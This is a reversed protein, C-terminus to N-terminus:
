LPPWGKVKKLFNGLAAAAEARTAFDTAFFRGNPFGQMIDHQIITEIDDKAWEPIKAADTFDEITKNNSPLEVETSELARGLIAALEARTVKATPRFTGDTFGAIVNNEALAYLNNAYWEKGTVDKFRTNINGAELDLGAAVIQAIEARSITSDPRFTGNPYGNLIGKNALLQIADKAWHGSFIDTFEKAPVDGSASKVTKESKEITYEVTKGSWFYFTLNVLGDNTENFFNENLEIYGDDYNPSFTYGFEKFSTWNQPGAISGDEYYAEMTALQDGNFEAPIKFSVTSGEAEGLQPRSFQRVDINWDVGDTFAIHITAISGTEESSISQLFSKKFTITNENITYDENEELLQNNMSVELFENGNLEFTLSKDTWEKGKELYIFNDDPVASRTDWSTQLMEFFESDSWELTNRNLHQGNDWLMHVLNKEQAYHTMFEFFKLKEGQQIAGIDTDFGLLGYEGIIVPIGKATFTDHVRDFVTIIDNKVEDNFRTARAINVSFPWFGYYHVTAIINPDDLTEIFSDLRELYVPESGTHLTPIVLPRIDNNGGSKRVIEYFSENLEDLYNLSEEETGSFRPENISEFMLKVSYDKYHDALQTWIANFRAVTQDHNEQMGNEIWVWSDHHVNIMVYLEEELAWQITQDIRILFDQDILYDGDTDMRQDFTIPIRISKFGEEAIKEILEKTVYPNGWATEDEGVADYTNGLNWGPQMNKAYDSIDVPTDGDVEAFSFNSTLCLFVISLLIVKSLYNKM